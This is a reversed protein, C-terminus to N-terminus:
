KTFKFKYDSNIINDTDLIKFTIKTPTNIEYTSYSGNDYDMASFTHSKFDLELVNNNITYTGKYYDKAQTISIDLFLEVTNDNYLTLNSIKQHPCYAAMYCETLLYNGKKLNISEKEEIETGINILNDLTDVEISQKDEKINILAYYKTNDKIYILSHIGGYLKNVYCTDTDCILNDDLYLKTNSPIIFTINNIIGLRTTTYDNHLNINEYYLKRKKFYSTKGISKFTIDNTTINPYGFFYKNLFEEKSYIDQYYENYIREVETQNLTISIANDFDIKSLNNDKIFYDYVYNYEKKNVKITYEEEQHKDYYGYCYITYILFGSFIFILFTIISTLIISKTNIKAM